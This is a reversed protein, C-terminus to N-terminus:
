PAEKLYAFKTAIHGYREDNSMVVFKVFVTCVATFNFTILDM